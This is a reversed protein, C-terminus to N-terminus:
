VLLVFNAPLHVRTDRGSLGLLLHLSCENTSRTQWIKVAVWPSINGGGGGGGGVVAVGGFFQHCMYLFILCSNLDCLDM